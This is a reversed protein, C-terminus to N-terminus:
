GLFSRREVGAVKRDRCRLLLLLPFESPLPLLLVTAMTAIHLMGSRNMINQNSISQQQYARSLQRANHLYFIANYQQRTLMACHQPLIYGMTTSRLVNKEMANCQPTKLQMPVKAHITACHLINFHLTACRLGPPANCAFPGPSDGSPGFLWTYCVWHTPYRFFWTTCCLVLHLILSVAGLPWMPRLRAM